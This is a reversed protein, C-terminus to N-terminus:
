LFLKTLRANRAILRFSAIFFFQVILYFQKKKTYRKMVNKCAILLSSLNWCIMNLLNVSFWLLFKM